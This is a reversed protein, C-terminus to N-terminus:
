EAVETHMVRRKCSMKMIIQNRKHVIIEIILLFLSVIVGYTLVLLAPYCDVMSVSIFNAGQNTCRPRKSYFMLNERDQLGHETLRKFGIKYMEKYPSHKRVGIWPDIVQLFPIEKLGCKEGEKFYKSVFKYGVGIEMHFAFLGKQINKVGEEMSIFRPTVGPPAIKTQYIAKRVPETAASFYYRNFITDDVAFKLRSHLLDDLTHIKSSSSQLLAVINASYSTYLFMLSLFLILM